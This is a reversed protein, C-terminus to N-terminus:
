IQELTRNKGSILHHNNQAEISKLSYQPHSYKLRNIIKKPNIKTSPNLSVLIPEPTELNQLINMNYTVSVPKAPDSNVHYNWAAWALKRKPLLNSDYHLIVENDKYPISKLIQKEFVSSDKLLTLAEDSHCAFIVWDYKEIKHNLKIEVFDKKRNISQIKSNLKIKNVFSKTLQSVYNKSGGAITLWQPRDNINLMGHNSLFRIFFQAPFDLMTKINASWIAAGMPLIYYKKFYESYRHQELYNGLTIESDSELLTLSSKNFKLIEYIMKHFKFNLLHSRKAFLTNLSTGNYELDNHKVSFSMLSDEYGVKLEKLLKTFNPYTKHNFVIFGTDVNFTQNFLNLTHTHSHGGIRDNSEFVTIDHQSHLYYALTNGAIGSGIIAIKM